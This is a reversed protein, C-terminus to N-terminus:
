GFPNTGKLPGVFLFEMFAGTIAMPFVWIAMFRFGFFRMKENGEFVNKTNTYITEDGKILYTSKNNEDIPKVIENTKRSTFRRITNIAVIPLVWLAFDRKSINKRFGEKSPIASEILSYIYEPENMEKINTPDLEGGNDLSDQNELEKNESTIVAVSSNEQDNNLDARNSSDFGGENLDINENNSVSDSSDTNLNPDEM